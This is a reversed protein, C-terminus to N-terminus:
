KQIIRIKCKIQPTFHSNCYFCACGTEKFCFTTNESGAAITWPLLLSKEEEFQSAWIRVLGLVKQPAQLFFFLEAPECV